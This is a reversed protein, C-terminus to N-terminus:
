AAETPDMYRPKPPFQFLQAQEGDGDIRPPPPPSSPLPSPEAKLYFTALGDAGNVTKIEYGRERLEHIRASYRFIGLRNLAGNTVGLSGAKRLADLITDRQTM